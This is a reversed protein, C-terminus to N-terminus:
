PNRDKKTEPKKGPRQKIPTTPPRQSSQAERPQWKPPKANGNSGRSQTEMWALRTTLWNKMWNVEAQHTRRSAFGDANPWLYRGLTNWEQFNRTVANPTGRSGDLEADHRDIMAMM